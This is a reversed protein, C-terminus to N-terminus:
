HEDMFILESDKLRLKDFVRAIAVKQLEGGSLNVGDDSFKRTLQTYIGDAMPELPIHNCKLRM